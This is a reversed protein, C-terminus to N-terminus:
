KNDKAMDLVEFLQDYAHRYKNNAFDLKLPHSPFTQGGAIVKVETISYCQNYELFPPLETQCVPEEEDVTLKLNIKDFM